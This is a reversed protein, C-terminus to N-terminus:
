SRPGASEARRVRARLLDAEAPRGAVEMLLALHLLADVHHPDVYLARRYHREAEAAAGRADELVGLLCLLDAAPGHVGLATECVGVAEGIRGRDALGRAEAALEAISRSDAAAATEAPAPRRMTRRAAPAPAGLRATTLRAPRLPPAASTVPAMPRAAGRRFAFTMPLRIPRFGRAAVVSTESAGVFLAGAPALLRDLAAMAREQMERGLYILVNRCFIVDYSPRDALVGPALLNALDFRVLDRVEPALAFLGDATPRFFRTPVGEPGGRFSNRGYAARRAQQLAGRSVDVADIRFRHPPMGADLLAMAMSFPEEGTACPASLLRFVGDPQSPVLDQQLLRVLASFAERDRFFWTELVVVEDILHQRESESGSVLDWYVGPDGAGTAAMRARVAREVAPRGISTPDLGIVTSLLREFVDFV